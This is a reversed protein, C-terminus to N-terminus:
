NKEWNFPIVHPAFSFLGMMGTGVVGTLCVRGYTGSLINHTSFIFGRISSGSRDRKHSFPFESRYTIHGTPGQDEMELLATLTHM